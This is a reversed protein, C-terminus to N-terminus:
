AGEDVTLDEGAGFNQALSQSGENKLRKTPLKGSEGNGAAAAM